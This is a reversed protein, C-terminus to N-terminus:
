PVLHSYQDILGQLAGAAGSNNYADMGTALNPTTPTTSTAQNGGGTLPASIQQQFQAFFGQKHLFLVVVVLAMFLRSLKQLSPVYGLAGILLISLTWYVFNDSGTFDGKILSFLDSQKDRVSAVLLVAGIILLAFPM